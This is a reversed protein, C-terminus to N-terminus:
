LSPPRQLLGAAGLNYSGTGREGGGKEAVLRSGERELGELKIM